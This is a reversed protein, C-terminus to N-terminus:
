SQLKEAGFSILLVGATGDADGAWVHVLLSIAFVVARKHSQVLDWDNAHGLARHLARHVHGVTRAGLGARGNARPLLLEAYLENIHIARLKQM